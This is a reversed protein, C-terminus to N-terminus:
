DGEASEFVKRDFYATDEVIKGSVVKIIAAIHIEGRAGPDTETPQEWSATFQVAAYEGEVVIRTVTNQVGPINEFHGRYEDRVHNLGHRAEPFSPTVLRIGDDYLTVVDDLDHRNFAEFLADVTQRTTAPQTDVANAMSSYQSFFLVAIMPALKLLSSM